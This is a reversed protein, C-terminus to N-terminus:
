KSWDEIIKQYIEVAQSIQDPYCFENVMHAQDKEGPGLIIAKVGHTTLFGLDASAQSVTLLSNPLINQSIKIIRENPNTFGAPAPDCFYSVNAGIKNGLNIIKEMAINHFKPTTRIDFTAICNSPFKNPSQPTMGAQISTMEGVSPPEFINDDFDVRWRLFEQQLTDAFKIMQRVSHKKIKNPESAHGSDGITEVQIFINGRHGHEIERLNTPETFIAALDKYNQKFVDSNSFWDAFDKTGSGDVEENVVYTFWLDVAPKKKSFKEALLMSAALGAKMDSAGLGLLKGDEMTPSWPGYKWKNEDGASVTDMHSNLIFARSNDVGQLHVILNEGQEFSQIDREKFWDKIYNKLNNEQGSYSKIEVLQNLLKEPKM